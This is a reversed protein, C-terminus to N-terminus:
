RRSVESAALMGSVLQNAPRKFSHGFGSFDELLKLLTLMIQDLHDHRCAVEICASYPM